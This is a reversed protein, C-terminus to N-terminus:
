CVSPPTNKWLTKIDMDLAPAYPARRECLVVVKGMLDIYQSIASCFSRSRTHLKLHRTLIIDDCLRKKQYIFKGSAFKKMFDLSRGPIPVWNDIRIKQGHRKSDEDAYGPADFMILTHNALSVEFNPAGFHSTYRNYAYPSFSTSLGLSTPIQASLGSSPFM